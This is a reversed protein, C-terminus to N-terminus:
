LINESLHSLMYGTRHKEEGKPSVIKEKKTQFRFKMMKLLLEVLFVTKCEQILFSTNKMSITLIM